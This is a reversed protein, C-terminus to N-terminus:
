AQSDEKQNKKEANELQKLKYREIRNKIVEKSKTVATMEGNETSLFTKKDDTFIMTNLIEIIVQTNRDAGNAGLRIRTLTKDLAELVLTAIRAAFDADSYFNANRHDDIIKELAETESNIDDNGSIVKKLYEVDAPNMRFNKRTNM